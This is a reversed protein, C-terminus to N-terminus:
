RLADAGASQNTEANAADGGRAREKREKNKDKLEQITSRFEFNKTRLNTIETRQTEIKM